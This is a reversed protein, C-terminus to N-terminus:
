CHEREDHAKQADALKKGAEAWERIDAATRERDVLLSIIDLLLRAGSIASADPVVSVSGGFM